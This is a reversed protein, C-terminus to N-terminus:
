FYFKFFNRWQTSFFQSNYIMMKTTYQEARIAHNKVADM